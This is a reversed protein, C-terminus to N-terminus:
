DIEFEVFEHEKQCAEVIEEYAKKLQKCRGRQSRSEEYHDVAWESVTKDSFDIRLRDTVAGESHRVRAIDKTRILTKM